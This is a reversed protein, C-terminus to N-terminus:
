GRRRRSREPRAGPRLCTEVYTSIMADLTRLQEANLAGLKGPEVSFPWAGAGENLTHAQSPSADLRYAGPPPEMPGKGTELWELEVQLAKALSRLSRSSRRLGREYSAIASQSVGSARALAKQTYGCRERATRL